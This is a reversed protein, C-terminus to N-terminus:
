AALCQELFEQFVNDSKFSFNEAIIETGFTGNEIRQQAKIIIEKTKEFDEVDITDKVNKLAMNIVDLLLNLGEEAQKKGNKEFFHSEFCLITQNMQETSTKGSKKVSKVVKKVSAKKM